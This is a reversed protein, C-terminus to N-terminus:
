RPVSFARGADDVEATDWILHLRVTGNVPIVTDGAVVVSNVILDDNSDLVPGRSTLDRYAKEHKVPNNANGGGPGNAEDDFPLVGRTEYQQFLGDETAENIQVRGSGDEREQVVDGDSITAINPEDSNFDLTGGETLNAGFIGRHEAATGVDQDGDEDEYELGAQLEFYVLEAVENTDLGGIGGLPEIQSSTVIRANNEAGPTVINEILVQQYEFDSYDTGMEMESPNVSM